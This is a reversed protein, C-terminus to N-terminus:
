RAPPEKNVNAEAMWDSWMIHGHLPGWSGDSQRDNALHVSHLYVKGDAAKAAAQVTMFRTVRHRLQTHTTDTWEIVSEQRWDEAPLTVRLAPSNGSKAKVIEEAKGRLQDADDGEFRDALMFTREARVARNKRDQEKVQALKQKLTALKADGADVTAAYRDIAEALPTVDREMVINPTKTSDTKWGTDQALYNLIRDFEKEIDGSLLARSRRLEEPMETLRERMREELDLLQATKGLPFESKEYEPWLTQAEKLLATREQIDTENLTVGAALYKQSGAGVDVYLRLKDVWPRCAQEQQARAAGENYITLTGTLSQEIYMLEQTKGHPFETKQYEAMLQNAKAYAQRCKEKEAESASNFQAGILLYQDSKFDRFPAFRAMWEKSQAEKKQKIAAEEAASAAASSQAQKVKTEVAALRETAAKMQPDEAPIKSGYRTQVEQMLKQAQELRTGATQLRNMELATVAAELSTEIRKLYSTVSSPLASPEASKAPTAPKAEEQPAAGGIPRGLRKELNAALDDASKQLSELKTHDPAAAKLKALLERTDLLEKEAQSPATVIRRKVSSLNKEIQKALDDPEAGCVIMESGCFALVLTCAVILSLPNTRRTAQM